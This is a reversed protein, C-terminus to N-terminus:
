ATRSDQVCTGMSGLMWKWRLVLVVACPLNVFKHQASCLTKSSSLMAQGGCEVESGNKHKASSGTKTNQQIGALVIPRGEMERM